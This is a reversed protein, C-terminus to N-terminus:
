QANASVVRQWVCGQHVFQNACPEIPDFGLLHVERELHMAPM